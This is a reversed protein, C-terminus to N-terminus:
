EPTIVGNTGVRLPIHHAIASENIPTFNLGTTDMMGMTENWIGVMNEMDVNPAAMLLNMLSIARFPAVVSVANFVSEFHMMSSFRWGNWDAAPPTAPPWQLTNGDPFIILQAESNYECPVYGGIPEGPEIEPPAIAVLDPATPSNPNTPDDPRAPNFFHPM